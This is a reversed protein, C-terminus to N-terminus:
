ARDDVKRAALVVHLSDGPVSWGTVKWTSISGDKHISGVSVEVSEGTLETDERALVTTAMDRDPTFAGYHTGISEKATYGTYKVINLTVFRLIGKEDYVSVVSDPLEIAKAQAQAIANKLSM